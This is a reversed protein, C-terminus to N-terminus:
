VMEFDMFHWGVSREYTEEEFFIEATFWVRDFELPVEGVDFFVYSVRGMNSDKTARL